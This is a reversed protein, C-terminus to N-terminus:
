SGSLIIEHIENQLIYDTSPGVTIQYHSQFCSDSSISILQNMQSFSIGATAPTRNFLSMEPGLPRDTKILM